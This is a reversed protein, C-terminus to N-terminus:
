TDFGGIIERCGGQRIFESHDEISSFSRGALNRCLIEGGTRKLFAKLVEKSEPNFYPSKGKNEEQRCWDLGKLWIAAALAGCAGGSLGMGGALGAVTMAEKEAAGMRRATETACSLADEPASARDMELGERAAQVADPGWEEALNFCRGTRFLIYRAFHFPNKFNTETIERCDPTGTRKKFSDMVSRTGKVALAAGATGKRRYAEAGVALVAGWLMGCQHGRQIIGGALPDTAREDDEQISGFERNILHCFTRSCTGLEKFLKKTELRNTEM